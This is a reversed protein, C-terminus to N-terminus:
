SICFILNLVFVFHWWVSIYFGCSVRLAVSSCLLLLHRHDQTSFNFMNISYYIHITVIGSSFRLFVLAKAFKKPQSIAFVRDELPLNSKLYEELQDTPQNTATSTVIIKRRRINEERKGENRNEEASWINEKKGKWFSKRRKRRRNDKKEQSWFLPPLHANPM